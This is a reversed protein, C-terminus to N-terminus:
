KRSVAFLDTVISGVYVGFLTELLVLGNSFVSFEIAGLAKAVILLIILISHGYIILRSVSMYQKTLPEEEINTDSARKNGILFKVIAAMYVSQVPVLLKLTATLEEDVFGPMFYFLCLLVFIVANAVLLFRGIRFQFDRETM